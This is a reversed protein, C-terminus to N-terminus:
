LYSRIDADRPSKRLPKEGTITDLDPAGLHKQYNAKGAAPRTAYCYVCGCPCTDYRGIDKSKICRCAPRQGPDKVKETDLFRMLDSDGPFASRILEGDICSNHVIGPYDCEDACSALTLNWRDNLRKLGSICAMKEEPTLPLFGYARSQRQVKVYGTEVFSFVLKTTYPSIIDGIRQIRLLIDPVTCTGTKLIPDYRWVVREKGIRGSLRVFAQLRESLSPLGPEFQEPEYDNLTYQFYYHIGRRDLYDLCPIIPDPKKTWFIIVRTKEFSLRYARSPNFPHIWTLYGKQLRRLFWDAYYAPIDTSRSASVIVPQIVPLEDRDEPQPAQINDSM